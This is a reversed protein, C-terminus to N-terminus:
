KFYEERAKYGPIQTDLAESDAGFDGLGILQFKLVISNDIKSDDTLYQQALLQVRWCCSNYEIGALSGISRHSRLDHRWRGLLSIQPTIPVIASIDSQEIEGARYRHSLNFVSGGEGKSYSIRAWGERTKKSRQDWLGSMAMTIRPIPRYLFEGALLSDSRKSTGQGDVAVRRDSYHFVQAMSLVFRDLGSEQDTWRSTFGLTARNNDGVRDGGSFRQAEFLRQYSFSPLSSDFNPLDDQQEFESYVYYLRPELSNLYTRGFYEANRDFYLGADLEYFPITRSEHNDVPAYDRLVYDTHDLLLSPKLFGWNRYWPLSLRPTHRLRSGHTKDLGSLNDPDRYFYVYQSQWDLEIGEHSYFHRYNVEPLRQFAEQNEPLNRDINLYQQIQIDLQWLAQAYTFQARRDLNDQDEIRLGQNLDDLYNEDSIDSFDIKGQWASDYHSFDLTQEFSLGWREGNENPNRLTREEDRFYSDKAIYGLGINTDSFNNLYRLELETHLGRGGIYSPTLTADFDPAINFYYPTSFFLGQGTNSTGITPYLFGSKRRDDIPFTFWPIYLIPTDLIEFRSHWAEGFGGEQDLNIEAARIRWSRDGPECTTFSGNEIVVQNADLQRIAKADGRLRTIPNLYAADFISAQNALMNIKADVGQVELQPSILEVRGSLEAEGTIREIRAADSSVRYGPRAILVNDKLVIRGSEHAEASGALLTIQAELQSDEGTLYFNDADSTRAAEGSYCANAYAKGSLALLAMAFSLSLRRPTFM